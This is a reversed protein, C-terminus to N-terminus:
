LRQKFSEKYIYYCSSDIGIIINKIHFYLSFNIRQNASLDMKGSEGVVPLGFVNLSQIRRLV